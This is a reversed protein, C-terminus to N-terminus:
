SATPCKVVELTKDLASSLVTDLNLSQSVVSAITNLALLNRHAEAIELKLEKAKTVARM